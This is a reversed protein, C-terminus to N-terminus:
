NLCKDIRYQELDDDHLFFTLEATQVDLNFWACKNHRYQGFPFMTPLADFQPRRIGYFSVSTRTAIENEPM